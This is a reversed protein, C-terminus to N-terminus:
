IRIKALLYNNKEESNQENKSLKQDQKLTAMFKQNKNELLNQGKNSNEQKKNNIRKCKQCRELIHIMKLLINIWM